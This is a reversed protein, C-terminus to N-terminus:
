PNSQRRQQLTQVFAAHDQSALGADLQRMVAPLDMRVLAAVDLWLGPFVESQLIGGPTPTLPVYQGQKLVFWDM